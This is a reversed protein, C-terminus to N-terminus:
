ICAWVVQSLRCASFCAFCHPLFPVRSVEIADAQCEDDGHQCLVSNASADFCDKPPNAVNCAKVWCGM